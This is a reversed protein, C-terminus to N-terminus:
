LYGGPVALPGAGDDVKEGTASEVGAGVLSNTVSTVPGTESWSTLAGERELRAGGTSKCGVIGFVGDLFHLKVLAKFNDEDGELWAGEPALDGLATVNPCCIRLDSERSCPREGPDEPEDFLGQDGM